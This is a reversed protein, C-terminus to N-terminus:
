VQNLWPLKQDGGIVQALELFVNQQKVPQWEFESNSSGGEQCAALALAAFAIIALSAFRRSAFM